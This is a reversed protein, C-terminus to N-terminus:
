PASVAPLRAARRETVAKSDFCHRGPRDPVVELLSVSLERCEAASMADFEAEATRRCERVWLEPHVSGFAASMAALREPWTTAREAADIGSAYAAQVLALREPDPTPGSVDLRRALAHYVWAARLETDDRKLQRKKAM